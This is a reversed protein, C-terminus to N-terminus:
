VKVLKMEMIDMCKCKPNCFANFSFLFLNLSVRSISFYLGLHPPGIVKLGPVDLKLATLLSLLSSINELLVFVGSM